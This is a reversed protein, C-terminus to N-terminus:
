MHDFSPVDAAAATAAATVTIVRTTGEDHSSLTSPIVKGRVGSSMSM